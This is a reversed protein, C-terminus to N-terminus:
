ARNGFIIFWYRLRNHNHLSWFKEVKILLLSKGTLLDDQFCVRTWKILNVSSYWAIWFCCRIRLGIWVGPEFYSFIVVIAFPLLFWILFHLFLALDFYYMYYTDKPTQDPILLSFLLSNCLQSPSCIYLITKWCCVIVDM